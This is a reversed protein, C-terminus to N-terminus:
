NISPAYILGARNRSLVKKVESPDALEGTMDVKVANNDRIGEDIKSSANTLNVWEGSM